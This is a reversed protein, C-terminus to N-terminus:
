NGLDREAVTLSNQFGERVFLKDAYDMLPKAQPPLDIGYSKLRWLIPAVHCDILSFENSMFFPKQLFIPAVATLSDSLIKRANEAVPTEKSQLDDLLSYWDREIRYLFTRSQARLVPDIPMLPPHPYREDLYEIIIHPTYLALDRDVLTPVSNYPNLVLLDESLNEDPAIDIIKVSINKEALVIRVRHSMPDLPGSHLTIASKRNAVLGM